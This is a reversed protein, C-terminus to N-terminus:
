DSPSFDALWRPGLRNRIQQLLHYRDRLADVDTGSRLWDGSLSEKWGAGVAAAYDRLAALQESPPASM